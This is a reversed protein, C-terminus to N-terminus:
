NEDDTTKVRSIRLYDSTEVKAWKLKGSLAVKMAATTDLKARAEPNELFWKQAAMEDKIVLTKKPYVLYQDGNELDIRRVSQSTMTQLLQHRLDKAAEQLAAIDSEISHLKTALTLPQTKTLEKTKM